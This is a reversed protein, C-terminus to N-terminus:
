FILLWKEYILFTISYRKITNKEIIINHLDLKFREQIKLVEKPNVEGDRLYEIFTQLKGYNKFDKPYNKNSNSYVYLLNDFNIKQEM